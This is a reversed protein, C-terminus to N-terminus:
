HEKGRASLNTLVLYNANNVNKELREIKYKNYRYKIRKLIKLLVKHKGVFLIPWCVFKFFKM